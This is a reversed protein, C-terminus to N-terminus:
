QLIEDRVDIKGTVVDSILATRYEKLLDIQGETNKIISDIETTAFDLFDDIEQQEQLTPPYLILTEGLEEANLHPQAARLRHLYLQNYLVYNSLLVFALLNPNMGRARVVLDYGTIAGNYKEPIIASDATYAGSRVVIIDNTKLVPDREYPIDEPDVFILDNENIKGREINTARILPLGDEKQKPPQGLGYKISSLYKLRVIEWHEPIEGLWDIGSDKMKVNPNLGKTVAQNIIATRQEKLLDIQKQKKEILTDIQHTKHDLYEIIKEQDSKNPTTVFLNEIIPKGLGFRTIGNSHVEFYRGVKDSQIFRFLFGGLLEDDTTSILSLHYGCVTKEMNEEVFAPVGIDDPSESDKTIIVDDKKLQYKEYEQESCSGINLETHSNIKENNYADPYHCVSVTLEDDMIHRDVSSFSVDSMYKLRKVEWYEPIEGIWEIGSEKYKPYPKM